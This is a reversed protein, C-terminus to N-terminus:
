QMRLPPVIAAPLGVAATTTPTLPWMYQDSSSPGCTPNDIATITFGAVSPKVTEATGDARISGPTAVMFQGLSGSWVLFKGYMYGVNSSSGSNLYASGTCTAGTYYIQAPSFTGNWNITTMYGAGTVFTVSNRAASVVNGLVVDNADLLRVGTGSAGTAGTAGTPGIPGMPGPLGQTGMPGQVGTPGIPGIPGQPGQAGVPGQLGAPGTVGQPGTAGAPGTPGAPGTAGTDGTAGAAGVPGTAGTAGTPGTPGTVTDISNFYGVVDIIVDTGTPSKASFRGANAGDVQVIAGTAVNIVGPDFNITAADPEAANASWLRIYGLNDPQFAVVTLALAGVGAPVDCSSADGGQAVFSGAQGDFTQAVSAVLRRAVNRTDVIRCPTVPTYALDLDGLGKLNTKRGAVVSARDVGNLSGLLGEISPAASVALLRDARLAHLTGRLSEEQAPSLAGAWDAVIRDVIAARNMDVALLPDARLDGAQATGALAMSVAFYLVKKKLSM